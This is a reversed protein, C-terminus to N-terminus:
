FAEKETSDPFNPGKMLIKKAFVLFLTGLGVYIV